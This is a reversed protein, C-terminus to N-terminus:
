TKPVARLLVTLMERLWIEQCGSNVAQMASACLRNVTFGPITETLAAELNTSRAINSAEAERM